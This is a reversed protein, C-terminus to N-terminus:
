GVMFEGGRYFLEGDIWIEGGDQMGHVIDWHVTSQNVGKSEAISRGLAMHITGGIKEDFLTNGTFNKVGFNTGIAFEGMRRAGEDSDLQALLHDENKEASAEVVVGDKFTLTVGTVERGQYITPYSFAITGNVSDEVPGTFIEGDPMNKKGDCNVWVRDAFSFSLDIGPGKVEARQKGALWNILREQRDHFELWYAVPDDRDLACAEYVFKTYALLGMEAEQAIANTPWQCLGYRMAGSGMRESWRQISAQMSQQARAMKQPDVTSMAKTNTDAKIVMYVDAQEVVVAFRPDLWDLQADSAKEFFIEGLGPLGVNFLPHGGADLIAGYLAQLLPAAEVSATVYVVDGEQVAVSYEVLLKALKPALDTYM